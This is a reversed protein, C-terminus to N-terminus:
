AGPTTADSHNITVPSGCGDVATPVSFDPAVGCSIEADAGVGSFVPGVTDQINITQSAYAVNGCADTATWNRTVTYSGACAGPVTVDNFDLNVTGCNDTATAQAFVPTGDACAVTSAAPLPNIVPPVSDQVSINQTLQLTGCPTTLRFTRIVSIPCSGNSSDQYTLTYTGISGANSISGGAATFQQLTIGTQSENYPLTT